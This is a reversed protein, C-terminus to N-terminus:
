FLKRNKGQFHMVDAGETKTNVKVRVIQTHTHTHTNNEWGSQKIKKTTPLM